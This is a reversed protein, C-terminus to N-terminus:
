RLEQSLFVGFAFNKGCDTDYQELLNVEVKLNDFLRGAQSRLQHSYAKLSHSLSDSHVANLPFTQFDNCSQTFTVMM